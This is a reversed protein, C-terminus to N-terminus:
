APRSNSVSPSSGQQEFYWMLLKNLEEKDQYAPEKMRQTIAAMLLSSRNVTSKRTVGLGAKASGMLQAMEPTNDRGLLLLLQISTRRVQGDPDDWYYM